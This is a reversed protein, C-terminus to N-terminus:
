VQEGRGIGLLALEGGASGSGKGNNIEGTLQANERQQSEVATEEQKRQHKSKETEENERHRKGDSQIPKLM